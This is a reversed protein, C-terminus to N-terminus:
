HVPGRHVLLRLFVKGNAVDHPNVSLIQFAILTSLEGVSLPSSKLTSDYVCCPEVRRMLKSLATEFFSLTASPALTTTGLPAMPFGAVEERKVRFALEGPLQPLSIRTVTRGITPSESFTSGSSVSAEKASTVEVAATESRFLYSEFECVIM